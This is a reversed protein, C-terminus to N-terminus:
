FGLAKLDELLRREERDGGSSVDGETSGDGQRDLGALTARAIERRKPGSLTKFGNLLEGDLIGKNLPRSITDNHVIRYGRPNLSAAHQVTRHLTTQLAHLRTFLAEATSSSADNSTAGATTPLLPQVLALSGNKGGLLVQNSLALGGNSMSIPGALTTSCTYERSGGNGDGHGFETRLHLRQAASTNAALSPSYELLRITGADDTSLFSLGNPSVLYNGTTAYSNSYDRGFITLKFPDEQFGIFTISKRLDSLLLTSGLRRLSTTLFYTDLFAVHILVEENEFARVFLKQGIACVLYGSIDTLALVPGKGGDDKLLLKLRANAHPDDLNPVTEIVDFIYTAGRTPRDEGNFITTGVAVFERLGTSTASSTLTLLELASVTENHDFEFGDIPEAWDHRFLELSGRKGTAVSPDADLPRIVEGEEPDFLAFPTPTTSAAVLSRTAPHSRVHTYDRKTSYHTRAIPLDFDLTGSAPLSALSISSPDSVLYRSDTWPIYTTVNSLSSEFFCLGGKRTKGIYGAQSGTLFLAPGEFLDQAHSLLPQVRSHAKPRPEGNPPELYEQSTPAPLSVTLAKNFVLQSTLDKAVVNAMWIDLQRGEQVSAICLKDGVEGIWFQDMQRRGPEACVFVKEKAKLGELQIPADYISNSRWVLDLSPLSYIEISGLATVISLLKNSEAAKADEEGGDRMQQDETDDGYDIEDDEDFPRATTRSSDQLSPQVQVEEGDGLGAIAGSADVFVHVQHSLRGANEVVRFIKKTAHWRLLLISGEKTIASIYECAGDELTVHQLENELPLTHIAGEDMKNLDYVEVAHITVLVFLDGPLRGATLIKHSLTGVQHLQEEEDVRCIYNDQGDGSELILETDGIQWISSWVQGSALLRQKRPQIKDEFQLLGGEPSAGHAAVTKVIDQGDENPLVALTLDHLPGLGPMTDVISLRYINKTTLAASAASSSGVGNAAGSEGYLDADDELDVDMGSHPVVTTASPNQEKIPQSSLSVLRSDGLMSGVFLTAMSADVKQPLALALSPPLKLRHEEDIPDIVELELGSITRGDLDCKLSIIRGDKLFLLGSGPPPTHSGSREGELPITLNETWLLQSNCLDVVEEQAQEQDWLPMSLISENSITREAWKNLRIGVMKGSQDIHLITSAAVVFVGGLSPCPQLYLADYPLSAIHTLVPHNSTSLDLTFIYLHITDRQTSLSGTWTMQESECLVAVTPKQFNPLFAFDRVNKINPDVEQLSLVFSPTYPITDRDTADARPAGPASTGYLDEFDDDLLDFDFSSAFPLVALADRPLLLAACRYGPDRALIPKFHAPLGGSQILPPRLSRSRHALRRRVADM